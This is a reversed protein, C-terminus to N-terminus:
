KLIFLFLIAFKKQTRIIFNVPIEEPLYPLFIILFMRFTQKKSINMGIGNTLLTINNTKTLVAAISVIKLKKQERLKILV